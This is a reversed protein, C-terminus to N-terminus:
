ATTMLSFPLNIPAECGHRPITIAWVEAKANPPAIHRFRLPGITIDHRHDGSLDFPAPGHTGSIWIWHRAPRPRRALGPTKPNEWICILSV